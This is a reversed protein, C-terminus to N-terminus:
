RPSPSTYLLCFPLVRNRWTAPLKEVLWNSVIYLLATGGVGWVIAVLVVVVKPAQADRLFLFGAWLVIFAIVPVLLSVFVRGVGTMLVQVIGRPADDAIRTAGAM